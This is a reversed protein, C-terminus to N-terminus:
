PEPTPDFLISPGAAASDGWAGIAFETSMLNFDGVAFDLATVTSMSQTASAVFTASGVDDRNLEGHDSSTNISSTSLNISSGGNGDFIFIQMATMATSESSAFGAGRVQSAQQDSMAEINEIGFSSLDAASLSGSLAAFLCLSFFRVIKTTM